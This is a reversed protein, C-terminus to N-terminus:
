GQARPILYALLVALAGLGAIIAWALGGGVAVGILGVVVALMGLIGSAALGLGQETPAQPSQRRLQRARHRLTAVAGSSTFVAAGPPAHRRLQLFHRRKPPAAAVRGAAAQAVVTTPVAESAPQARDRVAPPAAAVPHPMPQFSYAEKATQCGTGLGSFLLALLGLGVRGRRNTHTNM